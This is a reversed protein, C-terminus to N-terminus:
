AGLLSPLSLFVAIILFILSIGTLIGAVLACGPNFPELEDNDADTFKNTALAFLDVYCWCVSIISLFGTLTLLLIALGSKWRGVYFRHVGFAGLFLALFLTGVYSKPDKKPNANLGYDYSM